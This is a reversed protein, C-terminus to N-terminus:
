ATQLQGEKVGLGSKSAIRDMVKRLAIISPEEKVTDPNESQDWYSLVLGKEEEDDLKLMLNGDHWPKFVIAPSEDDGSVTNYE